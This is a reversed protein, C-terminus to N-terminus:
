VWGSGTKSTSSTQAGSHPFHMYLYLCIAYSWLTKVFEKWKKAWRDNKPRKKTDLRDNSMCADQRIFYRYPVHLFFSSFNFRFWISEFAINIKKKEKQAGYFTCVFCLQFWTCECAVNLVTTKMEALEMGIVNQKTHTHKNVYKNRAKKEACKKKRRWCISLMKETGKKRESTKRFFFVWVPFFLLLVSSPLSINSQTSWTWRILDNLAFRFSVFSFWVAGFDNIIETANTKPERKTVRFFFSLAAYYWIIYYWVIAFSLSIKRQPWFHSGRHKSVSLCFFFAFHIFCFNYASTTDCCM